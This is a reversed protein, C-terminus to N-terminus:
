TLSELFNITARSMDDLSLYGDVHRLGLDGCPDSVYVNNEKLYMILLDTLVSVKFDKDMVGGGGHYGPSVQDEWYSHVSQLVRCTRKALM